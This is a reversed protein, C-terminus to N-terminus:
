WVCGMDAFTNQCYPPLPLRLSASNASPRQCAFSGDALERKGSGGVHHGFFLVSVPGGRSTEPAMGVSACAHEDAVACSMSAPSSPGVGIGIATAQRSGAPSPLEMTVPGVILDYRRFPKGWLFDITLEGAPTKRLEFWEPKLEVLCKPHRREDPFNVRDVGDQDALQRGESALWQQIAEVDVNNMAWQQFGRIYNWSGARVCVATLGVACLLPAATLMLKFAVRRVTRPPFFIRVLGCLALPLGVFWLFASLSLKAQMATGYDHRTGWVYEQYCYICSGVVALAVFIAVVILHRRYPLRHQAFTVGAVAAPEDSSESPEM